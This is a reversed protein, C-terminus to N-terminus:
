CFYFYFYFIFPFQGGLSRKENRALGRKKKLYSSLDEVDSDEEEALLTSDVQAVCDFADVLRKGHNDNSNSLRRLKRTVSNGITIKEHNLKSLHDWKKNGDITASLIEKRSQVVQMLSLRVSHFIGYERPSILQTAMNLCILGIPLLDSKATEDQTAHRCDKWSLLACSLVSLSLLISFV